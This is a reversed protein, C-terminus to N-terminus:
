LPLRRGSLTGDAAFGQGSSGYANIACTRIQPLGPHAIVWPWGARKRYRKRYRRESDLRISTTPLGRTHCHDALMAIYSRPEHPLEALGISRQVLSVAEEDPGEIEIYLGLCPLEDLEIRCGHLEWSERRKEFCVAEVFGLAGLFDLAAQANDVHFQIEPRSKFRSDSRPGKYTMTASVVRGADDRCVRVRLGCDAALMARDPNDFIHNEELVRAIQGAGAAKLAARAPGHSEVKLKAEIEVSM